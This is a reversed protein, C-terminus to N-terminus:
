AAPEFDLRKVFKCAEEAGFDRQMGPDSFEVALPGDYHIQNLARIIAEWDLGGRGPARFEWGRRPDAKPLCSGLLGSKGNLNLAIDKVHVSTIRDKYADIFKLPDAGGRIVWAVDIEWSLGPGGEFIRDHPLSGDALKVIAVVWDHLLRADLDPERVQVM